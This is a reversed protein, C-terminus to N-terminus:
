QRPFSGYKSRVENTLKRALEQADNQRVFDRILKEIVEWQEPTLRYIRQM